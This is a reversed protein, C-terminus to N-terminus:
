EFVTPVAAPRVQRNTKAAIQRIMKAARSALDGCAQHKAAHPLVAEFAIVAEDFAHELDNRSQAADASQLAAKAVAVAELPGYKPKEAGRGPLAAPPQEMTENQKAGNDPPEDTTRLGTGDVVAGPSLGAGSAINAVDTGVHGSEVGAGDAGGPGVATPSGGEGGDGKEKEKGNAEGKSGTGLRGGLGHNGEVSRSHKGSHLDSDRTSNSRCSCGVLSAASLLVITALGLIICRYTKM